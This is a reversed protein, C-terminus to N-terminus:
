WKLSTAQSKPWKEFNVNVHNLVSERVYFKMLFGFISDFICIESPFCGNKKLDKIAGIQDCM